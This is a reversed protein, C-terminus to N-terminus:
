FFFNFDFNLKISSLPSTLWPLTWPPTFYVHSHVSSLVLALLEAYLWHKILICFFVIWILSWNCSCWDACTESQFVHWIIAPEGELWHCPVKKFSASWIGKPVAPPAAAKDQSITFIFAVPITLAVACAVAVAVKALHAHEPCQTWGAVVAENIVQDAHAGANCFGGCAHQGCATSSIGPWCIFLLSMVGTQVQRSLNVATAVPKRYTKGSLHTCKDYIKPVFSNEPSGLRPGHNISQLKMKLLQM